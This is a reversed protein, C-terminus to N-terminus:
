RLDHAPSNRTFVDDTQRCSAVVPLRLGIGLWWSACVKSIPVLVIGGERQWAKTVTKEDGIKPKGCMLRPFTTVVNPVDARTWVM